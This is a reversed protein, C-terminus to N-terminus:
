KKLINKIKSIIKSFISVKRPELIMEQKNPIINDTNKLEINEVVDNKITNQNNISGINKNEINNVNIKKVNNKNNAKQKMEKELRKYFDAELIARESEDCLFKRYLLSLIAKTEDKLNQKNLPISLDINIDYYKVKNKEILNIIKEPIRTKASEELNELIFCVESCAQRYAYTM